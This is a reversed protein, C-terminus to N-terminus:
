QRATGLRRRLKPVTLRLLGDELEGRVAKPDVTESFDFRREFRGYSREMRYFAGLREAELRREGRLLLGDSEAVVEILREAIGALEVAIVYADPTEVVDALPAWTRSALTRVPATERALSQSFLRNMREQLRLIDGLPDPEGGPWGEKRGPM